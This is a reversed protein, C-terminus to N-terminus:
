TLFGIVVHNLHNQDTTATFGLLDNFDVLYLVVFERSLFHARVNLRTVLVALSSSAHFFRPDMYISLPLRPYPFFVVESCQATSRFGDPYMTLFAGVISRVLDNPDQSLHTSRVSVLLQLTILAKLLYDIENLRRFREQALRFELLVKKWPPFLPRRSM